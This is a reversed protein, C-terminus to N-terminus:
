LWLRTYTTGFFFFIWISIDRDTSAHVAHLFAVGVFMPTPFSLSKNCFIWRLISPTCEFGPYDIVGLDMNKDLDTVAVVRVVDGDFVSLERRFLM